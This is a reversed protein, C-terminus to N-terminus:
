KALSAGSQFSRCQPSYSLQYLLRSKITPDVTRIRARGGFNGRFNLGKQRESRQWRNGIRRAPKWNTNQERELFSRSTM